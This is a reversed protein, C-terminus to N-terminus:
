SRSRGAHIPPASLPIRISSEFGGSPRGGVALTADAGYLRQLRATVGHLAAGAGRRGGGPGAGDDRVRLVLSAGDLHASVEVTTPDARPEVGHRVANEVLPQLILVPVMEAGLDEAVAIRVRMRGRYRVKQIELYARLMALEERLPVLQADGARLTGRLLDGLNMVMQEAGRPEDRVLHAIAHLTNFLFHPQVQAKLAGLQARLLEAEAQAATSDALPEPRREGALATGVALIAVYYAVGERFTEVLWQHIPLTHEPFFAHSAAHTLVLSLLVLTGGAAAHALLTRGDWALPWRRAMELVLPTILAGACAGLVHRWVDFPTPFPLLDAMAFALQWAVGSFAVAAWAAAIWAAVRWGPAGAGFGFGFGGEAWDGGAAGGLPLGSAADPHSPSVAAELPAAHSM